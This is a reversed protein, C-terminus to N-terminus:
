RRREEILEKIIQVVVWLSFYLSVLFVLMVLGLFVFRGLEDGVFIYLLIFTLTILDNIRARNM